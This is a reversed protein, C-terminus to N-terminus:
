DKLTTVFPNHSLVNYTNPKREFHHVSRHVATTEIGEFFCFGYGDAVGGALLRWGWENQLDSFREFEVVISRVYWKVAEHISM